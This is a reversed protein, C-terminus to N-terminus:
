QKSQTIYFFNYSPLVNVKTFQLYWHIIFYDICLLLRENINKPTRLFKVGTYSDRELLTAPRLAKMHKVTEHQKGTFKTFNKLLRSSRFTHKTIIVLSTNLRNKYKRPFRPYRSVMSFRSNYDLNYSCTIHFTYFHIYSWYYSTANM